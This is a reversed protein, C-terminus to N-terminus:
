FNSVLHGSGVRDEQVGEASDTKIVYVFASVCGKNFFDKVLNDLSEYEGFGPTDVITVGSQFLGLVILITRFDTHIWLCNFPILDASM